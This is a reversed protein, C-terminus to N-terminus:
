DVQAGMVNYVENNRIILLQNDRLQKKIVVDKTTVNKLTTPTGDYVIHVPVGYSNFANVEMHPNGDDDKTIEVTGSVLVM